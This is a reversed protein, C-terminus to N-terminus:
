VSPGAKEKRPRGPGRKVPQTAAIFDRNSTQNTMIPPSSEAGPVKGTDPVLGRGPASKELELESDYVAASPNPAYKPLDDKQGRILARYRDESDQQQALRRAQGWTKSRYCLFLQKWAVQGKIELLGLTTPLQSGEPFMEGLALAGDKDHLHFRSPMKENWEKRYEDWDAVTMVEYRDSSRRDPLDEETFFAFEFEPFLVGCTQVIRDLPNLGKEIEVPIKDWRSADLKKM